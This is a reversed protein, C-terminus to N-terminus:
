KDEEAWLVPMGREYTVIVASQGGGSVKMTLRGSPADDGQSGIPADENFGDNVYRPHSTDGRYAQSPLENNIARTVWPSPMDRVKRRWEASTRASPGLM